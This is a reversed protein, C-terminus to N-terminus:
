AENKQKLVEDIQTLLEKDPEKKSLEAQKMAELETKSKGWLFGSGFLGAMICVGMWTNILFVYYDLQLAYAILNPINQLVDEIGRIFRISSQYLTIVVYIITPFLFNFIRKKFTKNKINYITPIIILYLLEFIGGLVNSFCKLTFGTIYLLNFIILSKKNYKKKKMCMLVQINENLLYFMFMILYDLFMNNEIFNCINIIHKNEIVIPYWYNFCFKGIILILNIIWLSIWFRFILKKVDLFKNIDFNYKKKM